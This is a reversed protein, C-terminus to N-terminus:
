RSVRIWLLELILNLANWNSQGKGLSYESYIVEIPTEKVRLGACRAMWLTETCFSYRDSSYNIISKLAKKNYVRMGSQTDKVKIGFILKSIYSLGNNGIKRYWPMSQTNVLLRSGVVIDIDKSNIEKVLREVDKSNHQGDSDMTVFLDDESTSVRLAYRFGTRTAGGAGLNVAHNLVKFAGGEKAEKATQDSSCDNIVIVKPKQYRRLKVRSSAGVSSRIVSGENYAPMIIFINPQEKM